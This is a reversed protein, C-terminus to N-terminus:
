GDLLVGSWRIRDSVCVVCPRCDTSAARKHENGNQKAANIATISAMSVFSIMQDFGNNAAMVSLSAILANKAFGLISVDQIMSLISPMMGKPTVDAIKANSM